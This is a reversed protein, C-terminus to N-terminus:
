KRTNVKIETLIEIMKDSKADIRRMTEAMEPLEHLHNGMIKNQGNVLVSLQRAFDDLTPVETELKVPKEPTEKSGFIFNKGTILQLIVIVLLAIIGIPSITQAITLIENM